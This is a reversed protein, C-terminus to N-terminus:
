LFSVLISVAFPDELSIVFIELMKSRCIFGGETVLKLCLVTDDDRVIIWACDDPGCGWEDCLQSSSGYVM